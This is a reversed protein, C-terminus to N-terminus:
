LEQQQFLLSMNLLLGMEQLLLLLLQHIFLEVLQLILNNNVGTIVNTVGTFTAAFGFGGGGVITITTPATTYGSSTGTNISTIVCNVVNASFGYNIGTGGTIAVPM